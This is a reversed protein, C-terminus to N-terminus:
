ISAKISAKCPQWVASIHYSTITCKCQVMSDNQPKFTLRFCIIDISQLIIMHESIFKSLVAIDFVSQM